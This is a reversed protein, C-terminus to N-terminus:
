SEKPLHRLTKFIEDKSMMNDGFGITDILIMEDNEKFSLKNTCSVPSDSVKFVEKKILYNGTSSKGNGTSGLLCIKPKYFTVEQKNVQDSPSLKKM